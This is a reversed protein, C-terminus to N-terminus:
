HRPGIDTNIVLDVYLCASALAPLVFFEFELNNPVSIIKLITHASYERSSDNLAFTQLSHHSTIHSQNSFTPRAQPSSVKMM